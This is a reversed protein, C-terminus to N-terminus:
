NQDLFLRRVAATLLVAENPENPDTFIRYHKGRLALEGLSTPGIKWTERRGANVRNTENAGRAVANRFSNYRDVTTGQNERASPYAPVARLSLGRRIGLHREIQKGHLRLFKNCADELALKSNRKRFGKWWLELQRFNAKPIRRRGPRHRAKLDEVLQRAAPSIAALASLIDEDDHLRRKPM